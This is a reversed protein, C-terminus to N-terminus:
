LSLSSSHPLSVTGSPCDCGGLPWCTWHGQSPSLPGQLNLRPGAYGSRPVSKDSSGRAASGDGLRSVRGPPQRSGASSDRRGTSSAPSPPLTQALVPAPCGPRPPLFSGRPCSLMRWQRSSGPAFGGKLTPPAKWSGPSQLRKKGSPAPLRALALPKPVPVAPPSLGAAHPESGRPPRYVAPVGRGRRAPPSTAPSSPASSCPRPSRLPQSKPLFRAPPPLGSSPVRPAGHVSPRSRASRLM